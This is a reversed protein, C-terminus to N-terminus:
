FSIIFIFLNYFISFNYLFIGEGILVSEKKPRTTQNNFKIIQNLWGLPIKKIIPLKTINTAENHIRKALSHALFSRINIVM